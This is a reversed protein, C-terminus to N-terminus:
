ENQIRQTIHSQSLKPYSEFGHSWKGSHKRYLDGKKIVTECECCVHEKKAIHTTSKFFEPFGIDCYSM